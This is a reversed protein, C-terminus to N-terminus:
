MGVVLKVVSPVLKAILAIVLGVIGYIMMGKAGKTKEADGSSMMYKAGAIVFVIVVAVMMLYFIWNTVNYVTNLLCVLGWGEIPVFGDAPSAGEACYFVKNTGDEVLGSPATEIKESYDTDGIVCSGGKEGVICVKGGKHGWIISYDTAAGGGAGAKQMYFASFKSSIKCCENLNQATPQAFTLVPAFLSIVLFGM